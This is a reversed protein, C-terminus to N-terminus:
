RLSGSQGMGRRRGSLTGGSGPLLELLTGAAFSAGGYFFYLWHWPVVAAAFLPGRRAAFWLYLPSNAAALFLGAGLAAVASLPIVAATFLSVALIFSAVVSCRSVFDLNLDKPLDPYRVLLRAWPIGRDFIDSKLLGAATWRKLHRVQLSKDLRTSGGSSTIRYGLEIDEVSSRRYRRDDFGGHRLFLERRVAGCGSWFTAARENSRQHVYHHLLNKYQSIFNPAAPRDDYSGFLADLDPDRRFADAVKDLTDPPVVVDADVFLLLDGRAAEAGVNRAKAPGRKRSGTSLVLCGLSAAVSTSGDTSGDDVVIIELPSPVNERLAKLSLRLGQGGNYVAIIISISPSGPKQEAPSAIM